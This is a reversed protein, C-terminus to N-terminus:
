APSGSSSSTSARSWCTAPIIASRAGADAGALGADFVAVLGSSFWTDLVDPDRTSSPMRATISTPAAAKAEAEDLAVFIKGDRGTGPRSRIAGGSSARSAGPSSTACGNSIPTKGTAQARLRHQGEEVAKIAPQALTQADCYWQDTLWPEIVVGSRDGYPRMMPHDDIKEILGLAELEELVAKRAADRDLGRYKAPVNENLKADRDFINIMELKHRKGVEFDNFDHAPTIKVAGSGTEPDAYDDAVM